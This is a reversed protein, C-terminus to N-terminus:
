ETEAAGKAVERTEQNRVLEALRDLAIEWPEQKAYSPLLPAVGMEERLQANKSIFAQFDCSYELQLAKFRDNELLKEIPRNDIYIKENLKYHELLLYLLAKVMNSQLDYNREIWLVLEKTDRGLAILLM